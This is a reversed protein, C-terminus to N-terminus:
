RSSAWYVFPGGMSSFAAKSCRRYRGAPAACTSSYNKHSPRAPAASWCPLAPVASPPRPEEEAIKRLLAPVGDAEFPPQGALLEYLTAGLGYVDSATTASRVSGGAIEPALYQPTGLVEISRTITSHIELLKALGFDSVYARGAEDFLINGPKLDRHLVGREHAFQVADALMAVLHAIARGNGVFGAKRQTLTGGTALKMTFYPLGDHEGVQYVPLIAPHELGAITRVELRFRERMDASGLQHPLLMKLAVQRDPEMQQARYVIGMGGRAIEEIVTHGPIQFLGKTTDASASPEAEDSEVESLSRWTCAPCLGDLRGGNLM